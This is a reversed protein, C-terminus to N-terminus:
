ADSLVVGVTHPLVVLGVHEPVSRCVEGLSEAFRHSAAAIQAYDHEDDRVRRGPVGPDPFCHHLSLQDVESVAEALMPENWAVGGSPNLMGVAILTIEPDVARMASSFERFRRGYEEPPGHGIEWPGYTENGIFWHKVRGSTYRM